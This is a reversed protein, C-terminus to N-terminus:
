APTGKDTPPRKFKELALLALLSVLAIVIVHVTQMHGHYSAGDYHKHVFGAILAGFVTTFFWIFFAFGFLPSM